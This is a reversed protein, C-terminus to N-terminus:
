SGPPEQAPPWNIPMVSHVSGRQSGSALLSTGHGRAQGRGPHLRGDGGDGVALEDDDDVRLVPLVFTVQDHRRLPDSRLGQGEHDAVGAAQDADPHGPLPEVLEADGEHDLSAGLGLARGEGHRHVQPGAGGGANGGGVAGRGDAGEDIRSRSRAVEGSGAVDEGQPGAGAPHQAPGAVGLGGDVEGGQGAEGGGADEALQDPGIPLHGAAGVEGPEGGLVAEHDDGDVFQDGVPAPPLLEDEVAARRGQRRRVPGGGDVGVLRHEVPDLVQRQDPAIHAATVGDEHPHVRFAQGAVDEARAATVASGLQLQGQGVDGVGAAADDDVEPAM